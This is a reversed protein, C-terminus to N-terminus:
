KTIKIENCEIYIKHKMIEPLKTNNLYKVKAICICDEKAEQCKILYNSMLDLIKSSYKKPNDM